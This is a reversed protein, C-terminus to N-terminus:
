MVDILTIDFCLTANPPITPPAGSKGYALNPPITLRRKGGVKMGLCGMDWGKIVESRGLRFAFPKGGSADFVKGNSKLKGVYGMKLRKGNEAVAGSGESLEEILVGGVNREKTKQSFQQLAAKNRQAEASETVVAKKKEEQKPLANKKAVPAVAVEAKKKGVVEKDKGGKGGKDGKDGKKQKKSSNDEEEERSRKTKQAAVPIESQKVGAPLKNPRGDVFKWGSPGGVQDKVVVGLKGLQERLLDSKGFDGARRAEERSKMITRCEIVLKSHADLKSEM